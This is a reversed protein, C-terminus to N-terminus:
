YVTWGADAVICAGNIYAADESALFVAVPAIDDGTAQPPRTPLGKKRLEWGSPSPESGSAINTKVSGPAIGNCRIGRDGYAAAVSRTLGLVGHKTATYAFGARGGQFSAISCTNVFIGAGRQLMGSLVARTVLFPGTLNVDLVHQWLADDTEDVPAMRDLVGANNCVVEPPGFRAEVAALMGAIPEPKSVDAVHTAFSEPADIIAATEELREASLDAAFVRAGATVFAQAMARGIGSGAGTIIAVKGDLRTM